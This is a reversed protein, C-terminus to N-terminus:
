ISDPLNIVYLEKYIKVKNGAYSGLFSLNLGSLVFNKNIINKLDKVIKIERSYFYEKEFNFKPLEFKRNIKKKSFYILQKFKPVLRLIIYFYPVSMNNIKFSKYIEYSNILFSYFNKTSVGGLRMRVIVDNIYFFNLKLKMLTNLFFDFDSAIKLNENYLFYREYVRKSVFTAPHPPMLAKKIMVREYGKASYFRVPELFKNKDIFVVDGLYLDFKKKKIIKVVKEIITNSNYIDDSNLIAIYDGTSKKIGFNIAQYISSNKLTFIKKQRHNYKNLIKKTGDTSGADIIIHEINKYSQSLISNLTFRITRESNLCTTIISLKM